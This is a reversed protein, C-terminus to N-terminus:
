FYVFAAHSHGFRPAATDKFESTSARERYHSGNCVSPSLCAILQLPCILCNFCNYQFIFLLESSKIDIKIM